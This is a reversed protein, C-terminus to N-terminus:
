VERPLEVAGPDRGDVAEAGAEQAPVRERDPDVRAEALEVLRLARDYPALRELARELLEAGAAVRLPQPEERRVARVAEPPHEGGDVLGKARGPALEHELEALPRAELLPQGLQALGSPAEHVVRRRGLELPRVRRPREVEVTRGLAEEVQAVQPRAALARRGVLLRPLADLLDRELLEGCAVAVQELVEEAAERVLVGGRLRPLRHEVELVELEQRAVEEAVVRGHALGLLEAEPEDHHVLELVRVAELTLEDVREGTSGDRFLDEEQAAL